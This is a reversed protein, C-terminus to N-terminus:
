RRWEALEAAAARCDATDRGEIFRELTQALLDRAEEARPQGRRCRLLSRAIRLEWGLARQHRALALARMFLACAADTASADERLLLEGQARWVEAACWDISGADARALTSADPAGTGLTALIDRAFPALAGPCDPAARGSIGVGALGAAAGYACAWDRWYPGHSSDALAHLRALLQAAHGHDGRWFAVPLAVIVLTQCQIFAHQQEAYALAEHAIQAALAPQGRIWAIRALNWRTAIPSPTPCSVTCVSQALNSGLVQRCLATATDHEGLFHRASAEINDAILGYAPNGEQQAMARVARVIELMLGSEAMGYAAAGMALLAELRLTPAEVVRLLSHLRAVVDRLLDFETHSYAGLIALATYVCIAAENAMASAGGEDLAQMLRRRFDDPMGLFRLTHILHPTLGIGVAREGDGGFAWELAARCDDFSRGHADLWPLPVRATVASASRALLAAVHHAHHRALLAKEDGGLKAWGYARTLPSQRYLTNNAGLRRALLSKAALSQICLAVTAGDIRECACVSCAAAISFDAQFIASRCFVAREADTLLDFSWALTAEMTRHRPLATRRARTLLGLLDGLQAAMAGVGLAEVRAAALEIALPIGDLHRCLRCVASVKTADLVFSADNARAREVFLEVAAHRLAADPSASDDTSNEPTALGGLWYLREGQIDLPERTTALVHVGPAQQLLALVLAATGDLARDCNDLVLLLRRRALHSCLAALRGAGPLGFGDAEAVADVVADVDGVVSVAGLEVHLVGEAFQPAALAAVAMALATKGIGGPGVISLMRTRACQAPLAHLPEARGVLRPYAQMRPAASLAGAGYPLAAVPAAALRTVTAIFSYGCGPINEIYRAGDLGDGLARRLASMHVRLSTEEVISRPWVRAELQARTRLEGASEVLDVLLAFARSGLRVPDAGKLLQQSTRHLAFPGFLLVTADAHRFATQSTSTDM